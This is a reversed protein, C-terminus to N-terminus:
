HFSLVPDLSGANSRTDLILDTDMGTGHTVMMIDTTIDMMIVLATIMGNIMDMGNDTDQLVPFVSSYYDAMM